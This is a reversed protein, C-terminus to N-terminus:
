LVSSPNQGDGDVGSGLGGTHLQIASSNRAEAESEGQANTADARPLSPADAGQGPRRRPQNKSSQLSTSRYFDKSAVIQSVRREAHAAGDTGGGDSGNTGSPEGSTGPGFEDSHSARRLTSLSSTLDTAAAIADLEEGLPNTVTEDTYSDRSRM